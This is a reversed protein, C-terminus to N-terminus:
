GTKVKEIKLPASGNNRLVFGHTIQSGEVVSAFIHRQEPLFASPSEATAAGFVPFINALLLFCFLFAVTYFFKVKM